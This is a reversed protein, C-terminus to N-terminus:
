LGGPLLRIAEPPIAIAEIADRRRTEVMVLGGAVSLDLRRLNGLFRDAVIRGAILNPADPAPAAVVDEPRVLM